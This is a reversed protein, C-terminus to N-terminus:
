EAGLQIQTAKKRKRKQLEITRQDGRGKDRVGLHVCVGGTEEEKIDPIYPIWITKKKRWRDETDGGRKRRWDREDYTGTKGNKKRKGRGNRAQSRHREM